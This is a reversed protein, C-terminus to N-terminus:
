AISGMGANSYQIARLYSSNDYSQTSTKNPISVNRPATAGQELNNKIDTLLKNNKFLELLQKTLLEGHLNSISTLTDNNNKSM